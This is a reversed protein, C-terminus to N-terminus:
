HIKTFLFEHFSISTFREEFISIEAIKRSVVETLNRLIDIKRSLLPNCPDIEIKLIETMESTDQTAFIEHFSKM